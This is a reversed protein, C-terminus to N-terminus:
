IFFGWLSPSVPIKLAGFFSIAQEEEDESRASHRSVRVSSPSDGSGGPM